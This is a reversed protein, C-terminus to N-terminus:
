ALLNFKDIMELPITPLPKQIYLLPVIEKAFIKDLQELERDTYILAYIGHQNFFARHKEMEDAFNNQAMANIQSPSLQETKALYGHTSWPSLELGIKEQTYPNIITFDLRYIHRYALGGYRFEPILLCINLPDPHGRVFDMYLEYLALEHPSGSNRILVDRFFQFLKDISKDFGFTSDRGPVVLGTELAHGITWYEFPAGRIESKDNEWQDDRFRPTVLLGYNARNQGLWLSAQNVLPRVRSWERFHRVFSRKLFTMLYTKFHPSEKILETMTLCTPHRREAYKELGQLWKAVFIDPSYIVDDRLNFFKQYKEGITANLSHINKFDTENLTTPLLEKLRQSLLRDLKNIIRKQSDLM